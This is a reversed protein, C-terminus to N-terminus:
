AHSAPTPPAHHSLLHHARSTSIHDPGRLTNETSATLQSLPSYISVLKVKIHGCRSLDYGLIIDDM